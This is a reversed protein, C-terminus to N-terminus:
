LCRKKRYTAPRGPKPAEEDMLEIFDGWEWLRDTIGAEMAPSVKLSKHIRIFNYWWTYIRVMHCHNEFKKSFANTMRTFRRMHMRMTLNQREVFATNVDWEYPDGEVIRKRAGTCVVHRFGSKDVTHAPGYVKVLQAYDIETGFADEVADLYAHHGDTTLQIRNQLRSAVDQMFAGACDADRSGVLYSILLKSDADLATWTWTDGAGVPAELALQVNKQKAYTFSWIEDCQVNKSTLNRVREDHFKASFKGAEVLLKAVTNISCGVLRTISRM